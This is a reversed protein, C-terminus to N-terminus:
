QKGGERELELIEPAAVTASHRRKSELLLSHFAVTAMVIPLTRSTGGSEMVRGPINPSNTM